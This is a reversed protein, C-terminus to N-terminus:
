GAYLSTTNWGAHKDLESGRTVFADVDAIGLLIKIRGGELRESAEIQDLDRSERNDISSWPLHRLDVADSTDPSKVYSVNKPFEVAFGERTAVDRAIAVLDAHHEHNM